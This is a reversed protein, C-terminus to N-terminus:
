RTKRKSSAAAAPSQKDKGLRDSIDVGLRQSLGQRLLYEIQGNISRLEDGAWRELADFVDPDLRLLFRKREPM